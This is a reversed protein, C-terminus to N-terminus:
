KFISIFIAITTLVGTAITVTQVTNQNNVAAKNKGVDVIVLDNQQLYFYPSLFVDPKSLDIRGFKRQGNTERVVLVNDRRGYQTIDGALGIAEFASVKDAPIAYMGPKGVEGVITVKFNLFHVEVFPNKLLGKDAYLLALTDALQAKTKGAAPILGLKYLQIEGRQNVLFGSARQSRSGQSANQLSSTADGLSVGSNPQTVSATAKADDSYVIISMLDGNQIVPEPINLKSINATDYQGQLYQLNKVNGCSTSSVIIWVSGFCIYICHMFRHM